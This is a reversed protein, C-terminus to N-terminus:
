ANLFAAIQQFYTAEHPVFQQLGIETSESTQINRCTVLPIEKLCLQIFENKHVTYIGEVEDKQLIFDAPSFVDRYIFVNAFEYDHFGPLVIIDKVAGQAHLKTQDVEIGLEEKVERLGDEVTENALIHGAATIDFMSPFDTKESSRKQLLVSQGDILWCHITEHWYGERHATERNENRLYNYNEDFIKIKEM